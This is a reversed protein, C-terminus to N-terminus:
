NDYIYSYYFYTKYIITKYQWFLPAIILTLSM